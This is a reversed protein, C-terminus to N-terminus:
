WESSPCPVFFYVIHTERIDRSGNEKIQASVWISECTAISMFTSESNYLKMTPSIIFATM